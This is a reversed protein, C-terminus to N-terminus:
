HGHSHRVNQLNECIRLISQDVVFISEHVHGHDLVDVRSKCTGSVGHKLPTWRADHLFRGFTAGQCIHSRELGMNRCVYVDHVVSCCKSDYLSCELRRWDNSAVVGGLLEFLGYGERCRGAKVPVTLVEVYRRQM